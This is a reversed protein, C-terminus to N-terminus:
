HALQAQRQKQLCMMIILQQWQCSMERLSFVRMNFSFVADFVLDTRCVSGRRVWTGVRHGSEMKSQLVGKFGTAAPSM